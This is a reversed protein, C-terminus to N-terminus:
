DAHEQEAQAQELVLALLAQAVAKPDPEARHVAHVRLRRGRADASGIMTTVYSGNPLLHAGKPLDATQKSRSKRRRHRKAM